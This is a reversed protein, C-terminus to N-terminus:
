LQPELILKNAIAKDFESRYLDCNDFFMQSTLLWLILPLSAVIWTTGKMNLAYFKSFDLVSKKFHIEFIFKDCM